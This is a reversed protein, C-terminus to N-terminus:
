QFLVLQNSLSKEYKSTSVKQIQYKLQEPTFDRTEFYRSECTIFYRARNLAVGINKLHDWNLRRFKRAQLIKNVSKLGVGPIRLLMKKDAKNVDIPFEHLNRLAWSLKPDIELDLHQFQPNLIESVEFDYFRM